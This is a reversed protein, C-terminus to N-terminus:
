LEVASNKLHITILLTSESLDAEAGTIVARFEIEKQDVDASILEFSAGEVAPVLQAINFGLLKNYKDDLVIKFLGVGTREISKVGIGAVKSAEGLADISAELFLHKVEMELAQVRRFSRNAM